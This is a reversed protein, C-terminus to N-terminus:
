RRRAARPHPREARRSQLLDRPAAAGPDLARRGARGGRGEGQGATEGPAGAHGRHSLAAGVRRLHAARGARLPVAADRRQATSGAGVGGARRRLVRRRPRPERDLRREAAHADGRRLHLEVRRARRRVARRRDGRRHRRRRDDAAHGAYDVFAKEGATHVQRMSLRQRARWARYRECFASYRYGTPHAALYEVHLLELTVGPRRLEQHIAALDPEPRAGDIEAPTPGYLQAGARRRELAEVADWTLAAARARGVAAAVAGASVGLSRAAERHSRQAVWKLRLIERIKRM